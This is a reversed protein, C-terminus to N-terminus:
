TTLPIFPCVIIWFSLFIHRDQEMDWSGYMMHNENITCMHLIIICMHLIIIGVHLKKMKEFNHNKPNNPSLLAFFLGFHCFIRNHEMDWSVYITHDDNTTHLNLIMIDEPTKKWKKLIKIKWTTLLTSPCFIAWFSFFSQQAKYRLFWVDHSRQKHYVHKVTHYRWPTKCKNWIKIKPTLLPTFHCFTAQFSLFETQRVRYRLFQISKTSKPVSTYFSSIDLM